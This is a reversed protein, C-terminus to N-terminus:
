IKASGKYKEECKYTTIYGASSSTCEEYKGIDGFTGGEITVVKDYDPASSFPYHYWVGKIDPYVESADKKCGAFAILVALFLGEKVIRNM